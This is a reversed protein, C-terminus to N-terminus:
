TLRGRGPMAIVETITGDRHGILHDHLVLMADSYGPVLQLQTGVAPRGGAVGLIGHEASLASVSIDRRCLVLPLPLTGLNGCAKWGADVVAQGPVRNSVVATLVTLAPLLGPGVHCSDAYFRDMMCGGGAQIETIGPFDATTEFSGTGGTSVIEVQHGAARLADAASTLMDIAARCRTTKEAQPWATLLHGEYGMVGMLRLGSAATIADAVAVAAASSQVGVRSMGVDVEILLPIQVGAEGAAEAALRVHDVCDVCVIVEADTQLTAARQWKGPTALHNAVLVRRVGGAVMVEAESIKACTVGSAGHEIQLQALRPSKHAKVHPRWNVGRDALHRFIIEANREFVDLDLLAAPTDATEIPRGILTGAVQAM